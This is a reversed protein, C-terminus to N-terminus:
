PDRDIRDAVVRRAPHRAQGHPRVRGDTVTAGHGLVTGTAVETRFTRVRVPMM